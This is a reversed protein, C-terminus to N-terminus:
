RGTFNAPRKELFAAVGERYDDTASAISQLDRELDLQQDLTNGFSANLAQKILGLARTPQSALHRALATAETMLAADDVVRWILGWQAAQEASVKDGLLMLAGARAMGVLRPLRQTGGAGPVIGLNAEPLGVQADPAAIRYHAAMALELGGGLAAGHIAVVVPKPSNEIATFPPTLDPGGGKGAAISKAFEHIDAGAVFTRGGGIIVIAEVTSDALASKLCSALGETVGPSLANVPPNDITIVAIPGHNILTVLQNM